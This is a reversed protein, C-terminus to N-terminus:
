GPVPVFVFVLRTAVASQPFANVRRQISTSHELALGCRCIGSRNCARLFDKLCSFGSLEIYTGTRGGAINFSVFTEVM